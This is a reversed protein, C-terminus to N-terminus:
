CRKRTGKKRRRKSKRKRSRGAAGAGGRATSDYLNQARGPSDSEVARAPRSLTDLEIEPPPNIRAGPILNSRHSRAAAEEDAATQITAEQLERAAQQEQLQRKVDTERAQTQAQQAQEALQVQDRGRRLQDRGRRLQDALLNSQIESKQEARKNQQEQIRILEDRRRKERETTYTSAAVKAQDGAREFRAGIEEGRIKREADLIQPVSRLARGTRLLGSAASARTKDLRRNFVNSLGSFRGSDRSFVKFTGNQNLKLSLSIDEPPTNPSILKGDVLAYLEAGTIEDWVLENGVIRTMERESFKKDASTYRDTEKQLRDMRALAHAKGYLETRRDARSPINDPDTTAADLSLRRGPVSNAIGTRAKQGFLNGLYSSVYTARRGAGRRTRKGLKNRRKRLTQKPLKRGRKKTKSRM